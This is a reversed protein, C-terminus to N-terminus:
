GAPVLKAAGGVIAPLNTMILFGLTLLAGEVIKWGASKLTM